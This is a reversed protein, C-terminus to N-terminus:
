CLGSVFLLFEEYLFLFVKSFQSDLRFPILLNGYDLTLQCKQIKLYYLYYAYSPEILEITRLSPHQGGRSLVSGSSPPSPCGSCFYPACSLQIFM